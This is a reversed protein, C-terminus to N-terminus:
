GLFLMAIGAGLLVGELGLHHWAVYTVISLGVIKLVVSTNM